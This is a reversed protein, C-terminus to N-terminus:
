RRGQGPRGPLSRLLWSALEGTVTRQKVQTQDQAWVAGCALVVFLMLVWTVPTQRICNM